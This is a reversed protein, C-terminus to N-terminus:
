QFNMAAERLADGCQLPIIEVTMEYTTGNCHDTVTLEYYGQEVIREALKIASYRIAAQKEEERAGPRLYFISKYRVPYKTYENVVGLPKDFVDCPMCGGIAHIAKERLKEIIKNKM